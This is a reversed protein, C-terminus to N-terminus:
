ACEINKRFFILFIIFVSSTLMGQYRELNAKEKSSMNTFIYEARMADAVKRALDTLLFREKSYDIALIEHCM